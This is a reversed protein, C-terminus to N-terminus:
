DSSRETEDGPFIWSTLRFPSSPKKKALANDSREGRRSLSPLKVRPLTAKPTLASKTKSWADTTSRGLKGLNEKVAAPTLSRLPKAVGRESSKRNLLKTRAAKEEKEQKGFPNIKKLSWDQALASPAAFVGLFLFAVVIVTSIGTKV